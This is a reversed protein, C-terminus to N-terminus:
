GSHPLGIVFSCVPYASVSLRINAWFSLIGLICNASCMFSLFFSSWLTSVENRRLLPFLVGMSPTVSVFNPALVSPPVMCLSGWEPIWGMYLWWVWVSNCIGSLNQQCFGSMAREQSAIGTGPLYLLPHECDDISHFVSGRIFSSFFTGLSSFPDAVRYSSCCYSGVLVGWLQTELQM